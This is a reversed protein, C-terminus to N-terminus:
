PTEGTIAITSTGSKGAAASLIASLYLHGSTANNVTISQVTGTLATTCDTLEVTTDSSQVLTYNESAVISDTWAGVTISVILNGGTDNKIFVVPNSTGSHFLQENTAGTSDINNYPNIISAGPLGPPFTITSVATSDNKAVIELSTSATTSAQQSGENDALAAMPAVLIAVLSVVMVLALIGKKM